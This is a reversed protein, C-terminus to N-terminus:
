VHNFYVDNLVCIKQHASEVEAPFTEFRKKKLIQCSNHSIYHKQLNEIM